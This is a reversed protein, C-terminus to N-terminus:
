GPMRASHGTLLSSCSVIAITNFCIDIASGGRTLVVLAAGNMIYGLFCHIRFRNFLTLMLRWKPTLQDRGRQAAIECLLVDKIEGVITLGVVYSAVALTGWDLVRMSGSSTEANLKENWIDVDGTAFMCSDCWSQVAGKTMYSGTKMLQSSPTGIWHPINTRDVGEEDYYFDEDFPPTCREAAMSLNFGGFKLPLHHRQLLGTRPYHGTEIFNMEVSMGDPGFGTNEGTSRWYRVLPAGEGCFLCRGNIAGPRINCFMGRHCQHTDLCSPIAAGLTLGAAAVYQMLIMIVGWAFMAPAKARVEADEDSKSTLYFVVAQHWNTPASGLQAMVFPVGKPREEQVQSSVMRQLAGAAERESCSGDRLGALAAELAAMASSSDVHDRDDRADYTPNAVEKEVEVEEKAPM